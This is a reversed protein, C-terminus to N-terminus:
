GDKALKWIWAVWGRVTASRRILTSDSLEPRFEKLVQIVAQKDPVERRFLSLFFVHYFVPRVLIRKVLGLYKEKYCTGMLGAAEKTLSYVRERAENMGRTILGLYECASIYYNTQREDFEYYLTVEDRTLSREYLVSLLDVVREFSDAQPFVAEPELGPEGVAYFAAELDRGAITEDAFTYAKHSILELSNYNMVDAFQYFFLHFIDNSYVMFVPVARKSLKGQWLRWPYYLQRILLEEAAINKAECILFVNEGEYGGDIEVQANMVSLKRYTDPQRVDRIRFSFNGSAMRGNVTFYLREEGSADEFIGSNYAFLLASAESYLNTYDITLLGPVRVQKVPVETYEVKAHTEFPGIVYEGRTVPLISLRNRRFVEPLRLSQDFKAMLRAERVTNIEAASIRFCGDEEVRQAIQHREFLIEWAETISITNDRM